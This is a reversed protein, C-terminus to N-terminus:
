AAWQEKRRFAFESVPIHLGFRAQNFNIIMLEAARSDNIVTVRDPFRCALAMLTDHKVRYASARAKGTLSKALRNATRARGLLRNVNGPAVQTLIEDFTRRKRRQMLM